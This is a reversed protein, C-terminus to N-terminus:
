SNSPCTGRPTIDIEVNDGSSTGVDTRVVVTQSDGPTNPAVVRIETDSVPQFDAGPVPTGGLVVADVLTPYFATGTIIFDCGVPVSTHNVSTTTPSQLEETFGFPIPILPFIETVADRSSNSNPDINPHLGIGSFFQICPQGMSGCTPQQTRSYASVPIEWIWQNYFTLDTSVGPMAVQHMTKQWAASGFETFDGLLTVTVPPHPTSTSHSVTVGFGGTANLGETENFGINGSYSHAVSTTVTTTVQTTTPSPM